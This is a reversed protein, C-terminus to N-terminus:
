KKLYKQIVFGEAYEVHNSYGWIHNREINTQFLANNRNHDGTYQFLAEQKLGVTDSIDVFYTPTFQHPSLYLNSQYFFVNQCHRAATLCLKSAEIHDQNLDDPFHMFVTDIDYRYLVDEIAQMTETSYVLKTCPVPKFDTIEKVGLVACAKASETVSTEYDVNIHLHSSKTVNDTLTLKYVNVGNKALKAATGGAGLEADDYHAGIILVNKMTMVEDHDSLATLLAAASVGIQM